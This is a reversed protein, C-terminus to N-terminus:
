APRQLRTKRPGLQDLSDVVGVGIVTEIRAQGVAGHGAGARCGTEGVIGRGRGVGLCAGLREEGLIEISRSGPRGPSSAGFRLRRPSRRASNTRVAASQS